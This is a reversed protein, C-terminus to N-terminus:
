RSLFYSERYYFGPYSDPCQFLSTKCYLIAPDATANCDQHGPHLNETGPHRIDTEEPYIRHLHGNGSVGDIDLHTDQFARLRRNVFDVDPAVGDRM